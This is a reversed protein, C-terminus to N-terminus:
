RFQLLPLSKTMPTERFLLRIYPVRCLAEEVKFNVQSFKLHSFTNEEQILPPIYCNDLLHSESTPVFAM